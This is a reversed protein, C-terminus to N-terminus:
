RLRMKILTVDCEDDILYRLARENVEDANRPDMNHTIREILDLREGEIVTRGDGVLAAIMALRDIYDDRTPKM